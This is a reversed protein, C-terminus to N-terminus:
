DAKYAALVHEKRPFHLLMSIAAVGFLIYYYRFSAFRLLVGFMATAESLAFALIYARNVESPKHQKAANPLIRLKFVFSDIVLTLALVLIPWRFTYLLRDNEPTVVLCFAFFLGQSILLVLWVTVLSRHQRDSATQIENAQM